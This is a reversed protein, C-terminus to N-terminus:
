YFRITVYFVLKLVQKALLISELIAQEDIESPTQIKQSISLTNKTLVQSPNKTQFYINTAKLSQGRIKPSQVTLLRADM